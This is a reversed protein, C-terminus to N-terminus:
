HCNGSTFDIFTKYTDINSLRLESNRKGCAPSSHLLSPLKIVTHLLLSKFIKFFQQQGSYHLSTWSFIGRSMNKEWMFFEVSTPCDVVAHSWRLFIIENERRDIGFISWLSELDVWGGSHLLNRSLPKHLCIQNTM